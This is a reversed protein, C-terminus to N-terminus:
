SDGSIINFGRSRLLAPDATMLLEKKNKRKINALATDATKLVLQSPERGFEPCLELALNFKLARYYGPPFAFDDNLVLSSPLPEFCYVALQHEASPVPWVNVTELPSTGEVFVRTPMDSQMTKQIIGAWEQPALISVPYEAEPSGSTVVLGVQSIEVPRPVDLDGGIGITYTGKGPVLPILRRKWAPLTLSELSWSEIMANLAELSDASDQASPSEGQSLVGVLRMSSEILSRIKAM